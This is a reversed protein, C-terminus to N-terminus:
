SMLKIVDVMRNSFGWENDYWAVVKVLSGDIVKTLLSDFVSSYPNGIIDSSVIPDECYQLVGKLYSDAAKKFASNIEGASTKSELECVLDTVSACAVPVRMSVGDLRGKLEPIVEHLASAAGTTTPIINVAAARARRLDKHPFDLIRQDNTYAHITTMFGKQISFNRHLVMAVPALSNTTCSANSIVTESKSIAKDNVGKVVTVTSGDKSPASLLVKKAGATIHRSAEAKNNFFGTCEAVVDIKMDKWPLGEPEKVSLVKIRKGNIVIADKDSAVKGPFVGHVSDYKFLYALTNADTLDNIAVVDLKKDNLAARLFMRGIRGFGNVAVRVM